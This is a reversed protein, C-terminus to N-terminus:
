SPDLPVPTPTATGSTTRAVASDFGGGIYFFGQGLPLQLAGDWAHSFTSYTYVTGDLDQIDVDWLAVFDGDSPGGFIYSGYSSLTENPDFQSGLFNFNGGGHITFNYVPAPAKLSSLLTVALILLLRKM